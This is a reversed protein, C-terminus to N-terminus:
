KPPHASPRHRCRPCPPNGPVPPAPHGQATRTNPHARPGPVPMGTESSMAPATKGGSSAVAARAASILRTSEQPAHPTLGM